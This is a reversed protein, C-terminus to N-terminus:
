PTPHLAPKHPRVAEDFAEFSVPKQLFDSVGFSQLSHKEDESLATGSVIIHINKKEACDWKKLVKLLTIGNLVPMNMNIILVDPIPLRGEAAQNLLDFATLGNTASRVSAFRGSMEAMRRYALLSIEDPDVLLLNLLRRSPSENRSITEDM